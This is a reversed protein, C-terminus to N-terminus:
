IEEVANKGAVYGYYMAMSHSVGKLTIPYEHAFRSGQANGAAYLGPIVNRDKDFTHCNEDSELGGCIVLLLACTFQDAYFPGNELAFMRSPTKGFDEDFGNKALTNYREISALATKQAKEDEPYMLAVLEELTDAKICRGDAIAAELQYPSKYNRYTANNAPAEDASAYDEYYCAGGHVAPMYPLQEPWNSDFIQWTMRGKQMEIQNEIQQGPLDENMFRVGNMDLNLFGAIGMVGVGQIDAGGGMHHIVPAHDDQVIAGAWLGMKIADGMNTMNGEVDVNTFLRVIGNNIVAPCFHKVMAENQSYDGTALIVGKSANVRMYTGEKANRVYAGICRGDEMILKEGFCGYHADVGATVAADMNKNVNVAQSPLFEVSTPYCPYQEKTWDYKEPLPHFIPIIFNDKSEDPIASRTEEAFYLETNPEVWWDFVEGINNAWKRFIIEKCKYSSEEMHLKSMEDIIEPTYNDRGWKAQVNGNIVAYEGSRCQPGEAKEIAIVKGGAEAASRAAAVGAVGLGIVLVECDLTESCDADTINPAEGLWDEAVAEDAAVVAIGKAQDICSQLAEKVAKSTLTAGSVGDIDASQAALCQAVLEDAAVGGIDPTERSVDLVIDTISNADFTATVTVIDIGQATATYTGPTYIGAAETEAASVLGPMMSMGAISAAGAALGKMFDRRSISKGM